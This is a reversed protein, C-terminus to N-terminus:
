RIRRRQRTPKVGFGLAQKFSQKFLIRLPANSRGVLHDLSEAGGGGQWKGGRDGGAERHCQLGQRCGSIKLVAIRNATAQGGCGLGFEVATLIQRGPFRDDHDNRVGRELRVGAAAHAHGGAALQVKASIRKTSPTDRPPVVHKDNGFRRTATQQGYQAFEARGPKSVRKGQQRMQRATKIRALRPGTKADVHIWTFDQHARAVPASVELVKPRPGVEIRLGHPTQRKEGGTRVM